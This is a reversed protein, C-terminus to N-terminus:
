AEQCVARRAEGDGAQQECGPVADACRTSSVNKLETMRLRTSWRMPKVGVVYAM